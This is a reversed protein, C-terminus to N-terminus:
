LKGYRMYKSKSKLYLFDYLIMEYLRQRSRFCRNISMHIFSALLNELSVELAKKKHLLLFKEMVERIKEENLFESNNKSLLPSELKRYERNLGKKLLVNSNFEEKFRQEMNQLFFLLHQDEFKFFTLINEIWNFLTIFRIEDNKSSEIIGLITESDVYFFSEAKEITNKGYRELERTYTCLQIDWVQNSIIYPKLIKKVNEIVEGLNQINILEVRFRLHPKPDSYRIFFWKKIKKLALLEETLPKIVKLLITDATTVGCYIKYYLWKDGVVFTKKM